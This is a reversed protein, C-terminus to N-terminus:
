EERLPHNGKDWIDMIRGQYEIYAWPYGSVKDYAEIVQDLTDFDDSYKCSKDQNDYKGAIVTFSEVSGADAYKWKKVKDNPTLRPDDTLWHGTTDWYKATGKIGSETVVIVNVGTMPKQDAAKIYRM